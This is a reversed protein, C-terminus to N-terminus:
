TASALLRAMSSFHTECVSSFYYSFEANHPSVLNHAIESISALRDTELVQRFSQALRGVAGSHLLM